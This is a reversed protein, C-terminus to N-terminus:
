APLRFAFGEDVKALRGGVQQWEVQADVALDGAGSMRLTSVPRAFAPIGRRYANV